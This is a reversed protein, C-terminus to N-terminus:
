TQDVDFCDRAAAPIKRNTLAREFRCRPRAAGGSPCQRPCHQMGRQAFSQEVRHKVIAFVTLPAIPRRGTVHAGVDGVEFQRRERDGVVADTQSAM